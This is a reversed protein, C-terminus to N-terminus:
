RAKTQECEGKTKDKTETELAGTMIVLCGEKPAWGYLRTKQPHFKWVGKANSIMRRLDGGGPRESCRLDCLLQEIHEALTRSGSKRNQIMCHQPRMSGNGFRLRSGFSLSRFDRKGNQCSM